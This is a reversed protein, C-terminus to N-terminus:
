GGQFIKIAHTRAVDLTQWRPDRKLFRYTGTLADVIYITWDIKHQNTMTATVLNLHRM